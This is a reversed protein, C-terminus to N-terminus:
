RDFIDAEQESTKESCSYPPDQESSDDYKIQETDIRKKFEFIEEVEKVIEFLSNRKAPNLKFLLDLDSETSLFDNFNGSEKLIREIFMISIERHEEYKLNAGKLFLYFASPENGTKIKAGAKLLKVIGKKNFHVSATGLATMGTGTKNLSNLEVGYEFLLDMREEPHQQEAVAILPTDHNKNSCNPNAGFRRLVKMSEAFGRGTAFMFPTNGDKDKFEIERVSKNLIKELYDYKNWMVLFHLYTYKEKQMRKSLDLVDLNLFYDVINSNGKMLVFVFPTWGYQDLMNVDAGNEMLLKAMDANKGFVAVSLPLQGKEDTMNVYERNLLLIKEVRKLDNNRISDFFISLTKEEQTEATTKQEM